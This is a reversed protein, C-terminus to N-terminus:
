SVVAPESAEPLVEPQTADPDNTDVQDKDASTEKSDGETSDSTDPTVPTVPMDCPVSPVSADPVNAPAKSPDAFGLRAHLYSTTFAFADGNLLHVVTPKGTSATLQAILKDAHDRAAILGPATSTRIKGDGTVTIRWKEGRHVYNVTIPDHM